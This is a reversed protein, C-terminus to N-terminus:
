VYQRDVMRKTQPTQYQIPIYYELLTSEPMNYARQETYFRKSDTFFRLEKEAGKAYHSKVIESAINKKSIIMENTTLWFINHIEENTFRCSRSTLYALRSDLELDKTDLLVWFPNNQYGFKLTKKYYSM